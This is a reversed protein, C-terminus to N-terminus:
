FDEINICCALYQCIVSGGIGDEIIFAERYYLVSRHVVSAQLTGRVTILGDM